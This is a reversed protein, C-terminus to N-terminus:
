NRDPTPKPQSRAGSCAERPLHQTFRFHLGRRCGAPSQVGGLRQDDDLARGEDSCQPQKAFALKASHCAPISVHQLHLTPGPAGLMVKSCRPLQRLLLADLTTSPSFVYIEISWMGCQVPAPAAAASAGPAHCELSTASLPALPLRWAGPASGDLQGAM